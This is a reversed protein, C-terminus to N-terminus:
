LYLFSQPPRVGYTARLDRPEDYRTVNGIKIAHGVDKGAFYHLFVDRDIGAHEETRNWLAHVDDTIIDEVSFEGVVQGVPSSM